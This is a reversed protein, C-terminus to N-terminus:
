NVAASGNRSLVLTSVDSDLFTSPAAIRPAVGTTIVSTTSNTANALGDNVFVTFGTSETTGIPVNTRPQFVLARVAAQATGGINATQSFYREYRIDIGIVARTWGSTSAVTFDGRNVGNPITVRVLMDQVDPDTITLTSFVAKTANDNVLQNAVAGAIVPANNASTTTVRTNQNVAPTAVGDSVSILFDTQETTGPQIANQRPQFTLARYAATVTAGVNTGPSFYRVYNINNGLVSRTWGSSVGNTFDGRVVGNLITIKALMEQTDADSVTLSAFPNVTANDNVLVSPNAGTIGPTNNVSTTIVSTATNTVPAAVGDTVTVNFTTAETTNPKIANERPDFVLSRIATQVVSGINGASSFTRSYQVDNGIVTRTWGVVSGGTFDGRFVGNNIRVIASMAQTDPDTVTMSTFPSVNVNDNVPQNAVAGGITPATNGTSTITFNANNVDFFVNGVAEVKIRAQTTAVNPLTIVQTGDNPTSNLIVTGFTNGGDTSLLIRVNATNIGNATTGAVNWTVTQVSGGTLVATSSQSTIAFAAGTNVVHVVMDDTNVGGGGARNDRVTARFNMDRTTTPLKEGLSSTNALVSSLKPFTRTPNTTPTLSRFLPSSGNDPDSLSQAVGLDREEWAYTLTDGNADTAAATLAFATSAPITYDLGANVTPVSNGTATRTGVTPIVTDVHALIEDFSASHFYPDSSSQLNDAGFLGAYAMITSGSGPEYATSANRNPDSVNFTHNAGFQHGMEHAVYDVYFADGVPAAGGTEGRAKQGTLGVVGLGALGGGGTTFVHGIDYNANGIITDINAQNETLLADGDNNTYPDTAPNVYVLSSNNPVLQLRISLENEYIGSVRNMATVIAAQGAMVTGGHFATYEGSAAVATRYTRLQTGTRAATTSTEASAVIPKGATVHVIDDLHTDAAEGVMSRLEASPAADRAYYSAYFDDNLHFYPDVYWRGEDSLVQAHFGQPTFDLQVRATPDDIGQGAYTKIEPFQAALEPAMVATEYIAFRELNGDPDVLTLTDTNISFNFASQDPAADLTQRMETENMTLGIFDSLNLYSVARAQPFSEVPTWLSTSATEVEPMAASLLIREDLTRIEAAWASRSSRSRRAVGPRAVSVSMWRRFSSLWASRIM